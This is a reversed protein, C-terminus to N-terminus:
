SAIFSAGSSICLINEIAFKGLIEIAGICTKYPGGVELIMGFICVSGRYCPIAENSSYRCIFNSTFLNLFFILVFRYIPVGRRNCHRYIGAIFNMVRCKAKSRRCFFIFRADVTLNDDAAVCALSM